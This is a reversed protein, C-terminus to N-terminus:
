GLRRIFYSGPREEFFLVAEGARVPVGPDVVWGNRWVEWIGPAAGTLVFRLRAGAGPATEFSFVSRALSPETHFLVVHGDTQVGAWDLTDIRQGPGHVREGDFRVEVRGAALRVASVIRSKSAAGAIFAADASRWHAAVRAGEPLASRMAEVSQWEPSALFMSM